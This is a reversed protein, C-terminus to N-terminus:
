PQMKFIFKLPSDGALNNLSVCYGPSRRSTRHFSHILDNETPQQKWTMSSSGGRTVAISKHDLCFSKPSCSTCFSSFRQPRQYVAPPQQPPTQAKPHTISPIPRLARQGGYGRCTTSCIHPPSATGCFCTHNSHTDFIVRQSTKGQLSTQEWTHQARIIVGLAFPEQESRM